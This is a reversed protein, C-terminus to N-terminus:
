KAIIHFVVHIPPIFRKSTPLFNDPTSFVGTQSAGLDLVSRHGTCWRINNGHYVIRSCPSILHRYAYINNILLLLNANENYKSNSIVRIAKNQLVQLKHTYSKHTGGWLLIGYNLYPHILSYYLTRLQKAPMINKATNIAYLGSSIKNKCYDIYCHWDLIEDIIIGM